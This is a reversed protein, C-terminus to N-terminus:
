DTEKDVNTSLAVPMNQVGGVARRPQVAAHLQSVVRGLMEDESQKIIRAADPAQRESLGSAGCKRIRQLVTLDFTSFLKDIDLLTVGQQADAIDVTGLIEDIIMGVTAHVGADVIQVALVCTQDGTEKASKALKLRLDVVLIENGPLNIVGLVSDLGYSTRTVDLMKFVAKVKRIDLACVELGLKFTLYKGALIRESGISPSAGAVAAAETMAGM